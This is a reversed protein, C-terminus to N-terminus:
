KSGVKKLHLMLTLIRDRMVQSQEEDQWDGTKIMHIVEDAIQIEIKTNREYQKNHPEVVPDDGPLTAEQSLKFSNGGVNEFLKSKM